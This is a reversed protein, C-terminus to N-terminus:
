LPPNLFDYGVLTSAIQVFFYAGFIIILGVVAMTFVSQDKSLKDSEGAGAHSIIRVGAVVVGLFSIIGAFLLINPLLVAILAAVTPFSQAPKFFQAINVDAYAPKVLFSM